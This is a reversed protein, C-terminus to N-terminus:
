KGKNKETLGRIRATPGPERCKVPSFSSPGLLLAITPMGRHTMIAWQTLGEDCLHRSNKQSSVGKVM